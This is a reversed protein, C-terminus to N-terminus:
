QASAEADAGQHTELVLLAEGVKKTLADKNQMLSVLDVPDMSELLMGTIKGTLSDSKKNAILIIGIMGFLQEGVNNRQDDHSMKSVEDATFPVAPLSPVIPLTANKVPGSTASNRVNNNLKYGGRGSSDKGRKGKGGRSGSGQNPAKTVPQGPYMFGDQPFYVPGARQTSKANQTELNLKRQDKKQALAVYIPKNNVNKNNLETVAKTAEEPTSYCVFGFGKSVGTKDDVMVKASTITGCLAFEQRLREDDVSEDLNKVYLNVGQYKSQRENQIKNFMDKLEKERDGKKQARGVYIRSGEIDKDNLAEVAQSAKEHDEFNVFGFGKSEGKEDRMIVASTIPGWQEFLSKLKEDDVHKELQKVYINTWKEENEDSSREKKTQFPCVTWPKGFFTKGNLGEVAASAAEPTEFHVFGHGKSNGKEDLSVKCSLINGFTSFNDYLVKNDVEKSLNKIFINGVNSRRLQPDRQSWMIRMPKGKLDKYNLVDIAREADQVNHFNVYSYGLSRRTVTDRCVRISAIAGLQKYVEYLHSETIDPHLDGVYLSASAFTPANAQM